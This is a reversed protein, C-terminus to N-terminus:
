ARRMPSRGDIERATPEGSLCIMFFFFLERRPRLFGAVLAPTALGRGLGRVASREAGSCFVVARVPSRPAIPPVDGV